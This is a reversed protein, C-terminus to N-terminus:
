SQLILTIKGLLFEYEKLKDKDSNLKSILREEQKILTKLDGCLKKIPDVNPNETRYMEILIERLKEINSTNDVKIDTIKM